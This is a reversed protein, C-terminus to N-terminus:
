LSVGRFRRSETEPNWTKLLNRTSIADRRTGNAHSGARPEGQADGRDTRVDLAEATAESSDARCAAKAKERGSAAGRGHAHVSHADGDDTM